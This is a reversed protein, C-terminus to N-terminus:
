RNERRSRPRRGDDARDPAPGSTAATIAMRFSGADGSAGNLGGDHFIAKTSASHPPPTDQRPQRDVAVDIM